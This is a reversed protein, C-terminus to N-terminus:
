PLLTSSGSIRESATDMQAISASATELPQSVVAAKMRAGASTAECSRAAALVSMAPQRLRPRVHPASRENRAWQITQRQLGNTSQPM